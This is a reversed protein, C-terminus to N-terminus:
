QSAPFGILKAAVVATPAAVLWADAIDLLGGQIKMVAPYDKIHARRKSASAALDGLLAALVIVAALAGMQAVPLGLFWALLWAIVITALLGFALGEWTKKPSLVPALKRRGLLRGGLVSFSDFVEVLFFAILILVAQQGNGAVSVFAAVPMLPFCLARLWDAFKDRRQVALNIICGLIAGALLADPMSLFFAAFAAGAFLIAFPWSLGRGLVLGHVHGSEFGIRASGSVLAAALAVSPLFWLGCGVGIIIAESGMLPWLGAIKPKLSPLAMLLGLLLCGAAWTGSIVAALLTLTAETTV